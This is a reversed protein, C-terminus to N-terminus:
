PWFRGIWDLIRESISRRARRAAVWSQVEAIQAECDARIRERNRLEEMFEEATAYRSGTATFVIWLPTKPCICKTESM